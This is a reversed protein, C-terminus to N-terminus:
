PDRGAESQVINEASPTRSIEQVLEQHESILKEFERQRQGASEMISLAILESEKSKSLKEVISTKRVRGKPIEEPQLEDSELSDIEVEASKGDDTELGLMIDAGSNSTTLRPRPRVDLNGSLGDGVIMVQNMNDESLNQRDKLCDGSSERTLEGEGPEIRSTAEITPSKPSVSAEASGDASRTTHPTSSMYDKDALLQSSGRQPHFGGINPSIKYFLSSGVAGPAAVLRPVVLHECSDDFQGPDHKAASSHPDPVHRYTQLSRPSAGTQARRPEPFDACIEAQHPNIYSRVIFGSNERRSNQHSRRNSFLSFLSGEGNKCIRRYCDELDKLEESAPIMLQHGELGRPLLYTTVEYSTLMSDILKESRTVGSNSVTTYNRSNPRILDDINSPDIRKGPGWRRKPIRYNDQPNEKNQNSTIAASKINRVVGGTFGRKEEKIRLYEVMKYRRDEVPTRVKYATGRGRILPPIASKTGPSRSNSGLALYIGTMNNTRHPMSASTFPMNRTLPLGASRPTSHASLTM